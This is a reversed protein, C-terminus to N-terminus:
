LCGLSVCYFEEKFKFSLQKGLLAKVPGQSFFDEVSFPEVVCSLGLDSDINPKPLVVLDSRM